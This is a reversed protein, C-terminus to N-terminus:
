PAETADGESQAPVVQEEKPTLARGLYLTSPLIKIKGQAQLQQVLENAHREMRSKLAEAFLRDRIEDKVQEFPIVGAPKVEKALFLHYGHPSELVSSLEGEELEMVADKLEPIMPASDNIWGLDGGKLATTDSSLERAVDEFSEGGVIRERAKDIVEKERLREEEPADRAVSRMLHLLHVQRPQQFIEDRYKDYYGRIMEPTAVTSMVEPAVIEDQYKFFLAELRIEEKREERSLGSNKLSELWAETSPFRSMEEALKEQIEEDSVTLGQRQAERAVVVIRTLLDRGAKILSYEDVEMPLGQRKLQLLQTLCWNRLWAGRIETGDVIVVADQLPIKNLASEEEEKEGSCGVALLGALLVAAMLVALARRGPLSVRTWSM